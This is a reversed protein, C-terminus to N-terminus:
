LKVWEEYNLSLKLVLDKQISDQNQVHFRPSHIIRLFNM